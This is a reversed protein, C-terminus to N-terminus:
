QPPITREAGDWKVALGATTKEVVLGAVDIPLQPSFHASGAAYIYGHTFRTTELRVEGPANCRPCRFMVCDLNRSWGKCADLFAQPEFPEKCDLCTVSM